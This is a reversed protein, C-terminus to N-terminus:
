VNRGLSPRIVAGRIHGCRGVSNSQEVSNQRWCRAFTLRIRALTLRHVLIISTLPGSLGAGSFGLWRGAAVNSHGLWYAAAHQIPWQSAECQVLEPRLHDPERGCPRHHQVKPSARAWCRRCAWYRALSPWCRPGFGSVACPSKGVRPWIHGLPSLAPLSIRIGALIWCIQPSSSRIQCPQRQLQGAGFQRLEAQMELLQARTDNRFATPWCPTFDSSSATRM